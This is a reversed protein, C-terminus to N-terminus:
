PRPVHGYFKHFELWVADPMATESVIDCLDCHAKGDEYLIIVPWKMLDCWYLDQFGKPEDGLVVAKSSMRGTLSDFGGRRRSLATAEGSAYRVMSGSSPQEGIRM